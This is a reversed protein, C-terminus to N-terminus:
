IGLIGAPNVLRGDERIELHLHPGTSHGTSGVKGLITDMSTWEGVSVSIESLHAYLSQYGGKHEVIVRNGYGPVREAGIVRGAMVPRIPTGALAVMDLGAHLFWFKQTLRYEALPGQVSEDTKLSVEGEPVVVLELKGGTNAMSPLPGWIAGFVVLIALAMGLGARLRRHGALPRLAFSVPNSRGCKVVFRIARWAIEKIFIPTRAEKLAREAFELVM